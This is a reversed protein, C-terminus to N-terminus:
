LLILNSEQKVAATMIEDVYQAYTKCSAGHKKREGCADCIYSDCGRCYARERTRAPNLVVIYECHSCTYTPAEFLGRGSGVPLNHQLVMVEDPIPETVRHDIMLYGEKSRKSNAM